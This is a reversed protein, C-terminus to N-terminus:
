ASTGENSGVLRVEQKGLSIPVSVVILWSNTTVYTHQRHRGKQRNPEGVLHSECGVRDVYCERQRRYVGSM